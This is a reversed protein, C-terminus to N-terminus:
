SNRLNSVEDLFHGFTSMKLSETTVFPSVKLTLAGRESYSCWNAWRYGRRVSSFGDILDSRRGFRVFPPPVRKIVSREEAL